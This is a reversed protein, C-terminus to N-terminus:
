IAIVKPGMLLKQQCLWDSAQAPSGNWNTMGHRHFLSWALTTSSVWLSVDLDHVSAEGHVNRESNCSISSSPMTSVTSCWWSTFRGSSKSDGPGEIYIIAYWHIHKMTTVWKQWCQQMNWPVWQNESPNNRPKPPSKKMMLGSLEGAINEYVGPTPFRLNLQMALANELSAPITPGSLLSRLLDWGMRENKVERLKM